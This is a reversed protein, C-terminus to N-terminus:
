RNCGPHARVVIGYYAAQGSFPDLYRRQVQGLATISALGWQGASYQHRKRHSPLKAGPPAAAPDHKLVAALYSNLTAQLCIRDCSAAAAAARTPLTMPLVTMSLLALAPVAARIAAFRNVWRPAEAPWGTSPARAGIGGQVPIM